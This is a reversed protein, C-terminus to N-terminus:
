FCIKYLRMDGQALVVEFGPTSDNLNNLGIWKEEDWHNSDYNSGESQSLKLVYQANTVSVANQVESNTALDSLHLRISESQSTEANKYSTKYYVNLNNAAYAFMSGDNPMNLILADEPVVSKVQEVFDFEDQSYVISSDLTTGSNLEQSSVWFGTMETSVPIFREGRYNIFCFLGVLMFSLCCSVFKSSAQKASDSFLVLKKISNYVVYMGASTLPIIAIAVMASAREPDTYWFGSFLRKLEPNGAASFIYVAAILLFAVVVWFYKKRNVCYFIGLIMLFALFYQPIELRLGLDLVSALAAGYGITWDWLFNTTSSLFSSNLLTFWVLAMLILFGIISISAGMKTKFFSIKTKRIFSPIVYAAFYAVFFIAFAFIANPHLFAVAVISILLIFLWSSKIYKCCNAPFAKLMCFLLIPICSFAAINPYIQHVVLTRAPFAVCASVLFAGFIVPWKNDTYLVQLFAYAGLPFVIAVFMYNVANELLMVSYNPFLTGIVATIIHWAAPYYTSVNFPIENETLVGMYASVNLTSYDGSEIMGKIVASHFANDGIQLFGNAGDLPILFLYAMILMNAAVYLSAICITRASFSNNRQAKGPVAFGRRRVLLILGSAVLLVFAVTLFFELSGKLGAVSLGTGTVVYVIISILPSIFVAELKRVGASCLIIFGPAFLIAIGVCLAVAFELWM